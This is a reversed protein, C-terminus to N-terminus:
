STASLEQITRGMREDQMQIVRQNAEFHRLAMMLSSMETMPVANSSEQFGQGIMTRTAPRAQVNPKPVYNGSGHRVLDATDSFEFVALKGRVVGGQSIDGSDSISVSEPSGPDVQIPVGGEGLLELNDKTLMQGQLSIRFEGDRTYGTEGTPLRVALFGVAPGGDKLAIDSKNNTARLSGQSFNTAISPAPLLSRRNQAVLDDSGGGLVGAHVSAFSIDQKKFGPNTGAALNQAIMEQWRINGDLAAAAQYLPGNM